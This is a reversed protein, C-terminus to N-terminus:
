YIRKMKGSPSFQLAALQGEHAPIIVQAHHDHYSHDHHSHDDHSHEHHSHDHYHYDLHDHDYHHNHHYEQAPIILQYQDHCHYENQITLITKINITMTNIVMTM